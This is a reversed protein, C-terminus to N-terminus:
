AVARRRRLSAGALGFGGIMMAWAAPEPAGSTPPSPTFSVLRAKGEYTLSTQDTTVWTGDVMNDTHTQGKIYVDLDGLGYIFDYVSQEAFKSVTSYPLMQRSKSIIFAASKYTNSGEVAYTSFSFGFEDFNRADTGDKLAVARIDGAFYGAFEDPASLGIAEYLDAILPSPDTSARLSQFSSRHTTAVSSSTATVDPFHFTTEVTKTFSAAYATRDSCGIALCKSTLDIAFTFTAASAGAASSFTLAAIAAGLLPLRM